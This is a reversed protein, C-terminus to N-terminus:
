QLFKGERRSRVPRWPSPTPPVPTPPSSPSNTTPCRPKTNSLSLPVPYEFTCSGSPRASRHTDARRSTSSKPLHTSPSPFVIVSSILRYNKSLTHMNKSKSKERARRRNKFHHRLTTKIFSFTRLYSALSAHMNILKAMDAKVQLLRVHVECCFDRKM